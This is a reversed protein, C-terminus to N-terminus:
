VRMLFDQVFLPKFLFAFSQTKQKDLHRIMTFKYYFIVLSRCIKILKGFIPILGFFWITWLDISSIRSLVKEFYFIM